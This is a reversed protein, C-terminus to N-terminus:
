ACSHSRLVLARYLFSPHAERVPSEEIMLRHLILSSDNDILLKLQREVPIQAYDFQPPFETRKEMLYEFMQLRNFVFLMELPSFGKENRVDLSPGLKLLELFCTPKPNRYLSKHLPTNGKYSALNLDAKYAGLVPIVHHGYTSCAV